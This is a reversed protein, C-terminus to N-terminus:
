REFLGTLTTTALTLAELDPLVADLQQDQAPPGLPAQLAYLEFHYRHAQDGSPPCPGAYGLEGTYALTQWAGAPLEGDPSVGEELQQQQAPIDLLGWHKCDGDPADPDRVTLAFAQTDAPPNVWALPPSLGNDPQDHECSHEPPITAGHQFASSSVCFESAPDCSEGLEGTESAGCAAALFLPLQALRNQM